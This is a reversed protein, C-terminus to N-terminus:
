KNDYYIKSIKTEKLDYRTYKYTINLGGQLKINIDENIASSGRYSESKSIFPYGTTTIFKFFSYINSQIM